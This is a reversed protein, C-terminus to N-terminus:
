ALHKAKFKGYFNSYDAVKMKAAKIPNEESDVNIQTIASILAQSSKILHTPEKSNNISMVM